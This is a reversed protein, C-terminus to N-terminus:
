CRGIEATLPTEALHQRMASAVRAAGRGDVLQRAREGLARRRGADAALSALAGELAEPFGPGEAVGGLLLAGDRALGALNPQQNPALCIGVTPTAAAALEALTVGGASVALDEDLMLPRISEPAAHLTVGGIRELAATVAAPTDGAPGVVVDLTAAPVARRVALALAAMLSARTAGGLVLLVREVSERWSRVPPMAFEHALLAFRPGLLYRAGERREPPDLGPAPNVVVHGPVPFRGSDDIVVLLRVCEMLAELESVSVAYSDVVLGSAKLARVATLTGGPEGSVPLCPVGARQVLTAVAPADGHLLLRCDAWPALGAALALARRVHGLGASPGGDARLAIV